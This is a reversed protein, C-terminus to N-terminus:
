EEKKRIFFDAMIPQDTKHEIHDMWELDISIELINKETGTFDFEFSTVDLARDGIKVYIQFLERIAEAKKLMDAENVEEQIYNIYFTVQNFYTNYNEARMQVPQLQTFFCPRQYGETVDAGYYRYESKPFITSLLNNLGKRVEILTM